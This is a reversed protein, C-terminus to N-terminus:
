KILPFYVTFVAGGAPSNAAEITGNHSKVIRKAFSLGIGWNYKTPKTSSFPEFLKDKISPPIGPGSDHLRIQVENEFLRVHIDLKRPHDEPLPALVEIANNILNNLVEQIYHRDCFVYIEEAETTCSVEMRNKEFIDKYADLTDRIISLINNRSQNLVLRNSNRQLTDLREYVEVCSNRIRELRESPCPSEQILLETESLIGLLENKVYHSFARTSIESSSVISSFVFDENRMKQMDKNYRHFNLWLFLILLIVTVPILRMIGIYPAMQLSTYAIYGVSRSMWLFAGPLSFFMYFYLGCIFIDIVVLLWKIRRLERIPEKKRATVILCFASYLLTLFNLGITCCHLLDYFLRFNAADSLVVSQDFYLFMQFWTSYAVLQLIWFLVLFIRIRRHLPKNKAPFNSQSFAYNCLVFLISCANMGNILPGKDIDLYILKAYMSPSISFYQFIINDFNNDKAMYIMSLISVGIFSLLMGSMLLTQVTNASRKEM